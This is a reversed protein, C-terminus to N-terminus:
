DVPREELCSQVRFLDGEREPALAMVVEVPLSPHVVDERTVNEVPVSASPLVHSTCVKELQKFAGLVTQLQSTFIDLEAETLEIHALNAVREVQARDIDTASNTTSTSGAAGTM